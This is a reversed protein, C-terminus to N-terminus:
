GFRYRVRVRFGIGYNNGLIRHNEASTSTCQHRQTDIVRFVLEIGIYRVRIGIRVM